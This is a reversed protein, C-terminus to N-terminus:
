QMEVDGECTTSWVDYPLSYASKILAKVLCEQCVSYLLKDACHSFSYLSKNRVGNLCSMVVINKLIDNGPLLIYHTFHVYYNLDWAVVCEGRSSWFIIDYM